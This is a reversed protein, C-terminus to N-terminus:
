GGDECILVEGDVVCAGCAGMEGDSDFDCGILVAGSGCLVSGVLAFTGGGDSNGIMLIAASLDEGGDCTGEYPACALVLSDTEDDEIVCCDDDTGNEDIDEEWCFMADGADGPQATSLSPGGNPPSISTAMGMPTANPPREALGKPDKPGPPKGSPKDDSGGCAILAASLTALSILRLM